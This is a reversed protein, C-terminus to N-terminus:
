NQTTQLDDTYEMFEINVKLRSADQIDRAMGKTVKNGLVHMHTCCKMLERGIRIGYERGHPKNEDLFQICMLVPAVPHDGQKVLKKCYDRIGELNKEVNGAVPACVFITQRM